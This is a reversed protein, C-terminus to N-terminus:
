NKGKANVDMDLLLVQSRGIYGVPTHCGTGTVFKVFGKEGAHPKFHICTKGNVKTRTEIENMAQHFINKVTEPYSSQIESHCCYWQGM